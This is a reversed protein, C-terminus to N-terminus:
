VKEQKEHVIKGINHQAEKTAAVAAVVIALVHHPLVYCVVRVCARVCGVASRVVSILLRESRGVSPFPCVGAAAM